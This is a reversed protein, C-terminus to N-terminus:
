GVDCTRPLASRHRSARAPRSHRCLDRRNAALVCTALAASRRGDPPLATAQVADGGGGPRLALRLRLRGQQRRRRSGRLRSPQLPGALRRLRHRARADGASPPRRARHPRALARRHAGRIWGVRPLAQRRELGRSVCERDRRVALRAPPQLRRRGVGVRKWRWRPARAGVGLALGAEDCPRRPDGERGDPPRLLRGHRPLHLRERPDDGGLGAREPPGHLAPGAM